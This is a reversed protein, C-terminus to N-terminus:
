GDEGGMVDDVVDYLLTKLDQRDCKRDILQHLEDATYTKDTFASYVANIIESLDSMAKEERIEQM